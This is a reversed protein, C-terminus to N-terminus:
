DDRQSAEWLLIRQAQILATVAGNTYTSPAFQYALRAEALARQVYALADMVQPPEAKKPLDRLTM